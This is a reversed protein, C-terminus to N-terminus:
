IRDMCEDYNIVAKTAQYRPANHKALTFVRKFMTGRWSRLSPRAAASALPPMRAFITFYSVRAFENILEHKGANNYEYLGVYVYGSVRNVHKQM